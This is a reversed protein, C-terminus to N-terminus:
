PLCLGRLITPMVVGTRNSNIDTCKMRRCYRLYPYPRLYADIENATTHHICYMSESISLSQGSM